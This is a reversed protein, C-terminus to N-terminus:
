SSEQEKKLKEFAEEALRFEEDFYAKERKTNYYGCFRRYRSYLKVSKETPMANRRNNRQERLAIFKLSKTFKQSQERIMTNIISPMSEGDIYRAMIKAELLEVQVLVPYSVLPNIRQLASIAAKKAIPYWIGRLGRIINKM